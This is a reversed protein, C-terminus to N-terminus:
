HVHKFSNGNWIQNWYFNMWFSIMFSGWELRNKTHWLTWEFFGLWFKEDNWGTKLFFNKWREVRNQHIVFNVWNWAWTAYTTHSDETQKEAMVITAHILGIINEDRIAIFILFMQIIDRSILFISEYQCWLFSIWTIM